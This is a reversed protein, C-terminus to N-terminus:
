NKVYEIIKRNIKDAGAILGDVGEVAKLLEEESMAKGYPNREIEAVSKVLELAEESFRGFSRSTIYVKAKRM